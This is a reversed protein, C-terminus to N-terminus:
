GYAYELLGLNQLRYLMSPKSVAFNEVMEEITFVKYVARVREEPMLLNAAFFNAEREEQREKENNHKDSRFFIEDNEFTDIASYSDDKRHMLYHGLEHAITFRQRAGTDNRHTAIVWGKEKDKTLLGSAGNLEKKLDIQCVALGNKRALRIMPVPVWGGVKKLQENALNIIDQTNM